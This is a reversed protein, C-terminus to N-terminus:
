YTTSPPINQKTEMRSSLQITTIYKYVQLIYNIFPHLGYFYSQFHLSLCPKQKDLLFQVFFWILTLIRIHQLVMLTLSFFTSFYSFLGDNAFCFHLTLLNQISISTYVNSISKGDFWLMWLLEHPWQKEAESGKFM